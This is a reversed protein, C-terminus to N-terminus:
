TRPADIWDGPPDPDWLTGNADRYLVRTFGSAHARQLLALADARSAAVLAVAKGGLKRKGWTREDDSTIEVLPPQDLVELDGAENWGDALRTPVLSFLWQEHRSCANALASPDAPDEIWRIVVLRGHEDRRVGAPLPADVILPVERAWGPGDRPVDRDIVDVVADKARSAFRLPRTRRYRLAGAPSPYAFAQAFFCDPWADRLAIIAATMDDLVASRYKAVLNAGFWLRLDM